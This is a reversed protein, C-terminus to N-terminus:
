SAWPSDGDDGSACTSAGAAGKFDDSVTKEPFKVFQYFGSTDVSVSDTLENANITGSCNGDTYLYVKVGPLGLGGDNNLADRNRDIFIQGSIVNQNGNSPCSSINVIVMAVDCVIPSPTSCVRYEFTDSGVYGPNPTYLITGNANVSVTGHLPQLLGLTTVTSPDITALFGFDNALVAITVPQSVLTSAFDDEAIVIKQKCFPQITAGVDWSPYAIVGSAPDEGYVAAIKAGNCTYLAIGSQDNDGPDKIKVYNLANLAIAVDYRLGCPSVLGTTGSVNGDYKVYLTTNASPTVWIPNDNRSGDVSGPAWAVTAFDSLRPESILNFSWDYENGTNGGGGPTYSDIVEIATFSEGTLNVFKYAATASYALPFRVASKAPIAIVGSAPAGSYWNVNITRNLSNYLMVVATDKIVDTVVDSTPVPTYYVNSYWTAPFI